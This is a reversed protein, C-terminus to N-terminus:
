GDDAGGALEEAHEEAVFVVDGGTGGDDEEGGGDEGGGVGEGAGFAKKEGPAVDLCAARNGSRVSSECRDGDTAVIMEEVSKM